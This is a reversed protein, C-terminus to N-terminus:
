PVTLHVTMSASAPPISTIAFGSPAGDAWRLTIHNPNPDVSQLDYGTAPDAGDWLRWNIPPGYIPRIMRIARRSWGKWKPDNWQQPSVGPPTPLNDYVADDEIIHWVALGDHPIHNDYSTGGWRNEVIFYESDGRLPNYLIHVEGHTEVDRVTYWGSTQIVIPTVWGFRLKHFPDLHPPDHPSQDMISYPGAAYPQFFGFYMDGTCLLIHSLEHAVLGLSPPSGIYAEVMTDVRVGDVVLPQSSPHERGVVSRQTGFPSNQPIVILMTLEHPELVGDHDDDFNALNVDQSARRIAEAWKEVHGHIFGDSCPTAPHNWYHDADKAADYWGLVGGNTITFRGGSVESFYNRVSTGPGFLLNEV